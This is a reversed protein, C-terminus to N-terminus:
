FKIRGTGKKPRQDNKRRQISNKHLIECLFNGRVLEVAPVPLVIVEDIDPLLLIKFGPLQRIRHMNVKEIDCIVRM